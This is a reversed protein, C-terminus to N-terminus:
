LKYIVDKREVVIPWGAKKAHEYLKMNPNFCIPKEVSELLTIDGETDGVAVSDERSLEHKEFFRNVINSKNEIVELHNINGTFQDNEDIEYIRGYVKDFGHTKCFSDLITKPSQSIAVIFYGDAHLEKILDRTYRYTYKWQEEVVSRGIDAFDGYSVGKLEKLFAQVVAHIYADYTGERNLWAKLENAYEKKMEEPFINGRILANVLEILLSSRFVTGDIDFFAVKQM